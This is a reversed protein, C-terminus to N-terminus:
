GQSTETSYPSNYDFWSKPSPYLKGTPEWRDHMRKLAAEPVGHVSGFKGHCEIIQVAYNYAEAMEQYTKLEWLQTFTNSVLVCRHGNKMANRAQTQCWDHAQGIQSPVYVYESGRM